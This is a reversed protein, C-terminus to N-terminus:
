SSYAPQVPTGTPNDLRTRQSATQVPSACLARVEFKTPNLANKTANELWRRQSASQSILQSPSRHGIIIPPGQQFQPGVANFSQSPIALSTSQTANCLSSRSQHSQSPSRLDITPVDQRNRRLALPAPIPKTSSLTKSRTSQSPSRLDIVAANQPTLNSSSSSLTSNPWSKKTTRSTGAWFPDPLEKRKPPMDASSDVGIPAELHRSAGNGGDVPNSTPPM